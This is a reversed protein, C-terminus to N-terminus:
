SGESHAASSLVEDLLVLHQKVVTQLPTISRQTPYVSPEAM